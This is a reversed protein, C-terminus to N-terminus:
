PEDVEYMEEENFGTLLWTSFDEDFDEALAGAIDIDIWELEEYALDIDDPNGLITLFDKTFLEIDPTERYRLIMGNYEKAKIRVTSDRLEPKLEPELEPENSWESGGKLKGVALASFLTGMFLASFVTKLFILAAIGRLLWGLVPIRQVYIFAGWLQENVDSIVLDPFVLALIYAPIVAISLISDSAIMHRTGNVELESKYTGNKTKNSLANINLWFIMLGGIVAYGLYAATSEARFLILIV